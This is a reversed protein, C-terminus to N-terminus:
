ALTAYIHNIKVSKITSRNIARYGKNVVDFITIYQEADLTSKGGKLHKTVGLRGTLVRETGDKKTFSVTVFRGASQMILQDLM